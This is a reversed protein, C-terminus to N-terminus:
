ANLSFNTALNTLTLRSDVYNTRIISGLNRIFKWLQLYNCASQHVTFNV